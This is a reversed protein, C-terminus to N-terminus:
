IKNNLSQKKKAKKHEIKYFLIISLERYVTGNVTTKTSPNYLLWQLWTATSSSGSVKLLYSNNVSWFMNSDPGPKFCWFEVKIFHSDFIWLYNAFALEKM